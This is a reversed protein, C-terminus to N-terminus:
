TKFRVCNPYMTLDDYVAGQAGKYSETETSLLYKIDSLNCSAVPESECWRGNHLASHKNRQPRFVRGLFGPLRSAHKSAAVIVSPARTVPPHCHEPLM